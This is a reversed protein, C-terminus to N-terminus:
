YLDHEEGQEDEVSYWQLLGENSEIWPRAQELSLFEREEEQDSDIFQYSVIIM